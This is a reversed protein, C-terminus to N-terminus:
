LLNADLNLSSANKIISLIYISYVKVIVGFSGAESIKIASNPATPKSLKTSVSFPKTAYM